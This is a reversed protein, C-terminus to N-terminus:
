GSTADETDEWLTPSVVGVIEAVQITTMYHVSYIKRANVTVVQADDVYVVGTLANLISRLLNDLDPVGTPTADIYREKLGWSLGAFHSLPRRIAFILTLSIPLPTPIGRGWSAEAENRVRRRWNMLESRNEYYVNGRRNGGIRPPVPKGPVNFRIVRAM